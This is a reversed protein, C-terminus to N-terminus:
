DNIFNPVICRDNELNEKLQQLVSITRNLYFDRSVSVKEMRPHNQEDYNLRSM